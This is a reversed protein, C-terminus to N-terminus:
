RKNIAFIEVISSENVHGEGTSAFPEIAIAGEELVDSGIYGAIFSIPYSYGVIAGIITGSIVSFKLTRILYGLRIKEGRTKAKAIGILSNSLGGLCGIAAFILTSNM